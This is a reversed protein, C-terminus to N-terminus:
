GPLREFRALAGWEWAAAGCLAACVVLWLSAPLLFVAALLGVLLAIATLVRDKLM